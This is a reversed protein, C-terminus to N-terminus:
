KREFVWMTTELGLLRIAQRSQLAFGEPAIQRPIEPILLVIKGGKRTVRYLERLVAQLWENADGQTQFQKGFPLNSVCADFTEDQHALHRADHLEVHAQYVNTRAVEVASADIDGGYAQWGQQLAESLITGSGCCPDLLKGPPQGALRVMAAAVVPRLAGARESERGDHQRMSANSVRLGSIFNGHEHEVVWVELAAPDAVSWRPKTNQIHKIIDDRLETRRLGDERLVRVIVRFTMAARLPVVMEAFVSLAREVGEANWASAAMASSSRADARSFSAIEVFVDEATRLELCEHRTGRAANFLVVDSRGDFGIIADQAIGRDCLEDILTPALGPVTMAFMRTGTPSRKQTRQENAISIM